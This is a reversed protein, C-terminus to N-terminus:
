EYFPIEVATQAGTSPDLILVGIGTMTESIDIIFGGVEYHGPEMEREKFAKQILQSSLRSLIQRSLNQQFDELPDRTPYQSIGVPEKLKNQAQASSMLWSANYPNGGFSPNIPTWVLQSAMVPSSSVLM